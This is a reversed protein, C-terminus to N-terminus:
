LNLLKREKPTLKALAAKRQEQIELKKEDAAQHDRWWIQMELSYNKVDVTKLRRCLRATYEDAITRTVGSNYVRPHNGGLHKKELYGTQLEDLFAAIKSVERELQSPELHDSNCPM